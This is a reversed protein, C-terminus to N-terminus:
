KKYWVLRKVKKINEITLEYDEIITDHYYYCQPSNDEGKFHEHLQFEYEMRGCITEEGVYKYDEIVSCSSFFYLYILLIIYLFIQTSKKM